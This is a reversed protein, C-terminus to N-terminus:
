RRELKNSKPSSNRKTACKTLLSWRTSSCNELLPMKSNMKKIDLIKLIEDGLPKPLLNLYPQKHNVDDMGNLVYFRKSMNDYHKELDKRQLSCCKMKLHEERAQNSYHNTSGLFETYIFLLDLLSARTVQIQRYWQPQDVIRENKSSKMYLLMQTNYKQLVGLFCRLFANMSPCWWSRLTKQHRLTSPLSKFSDNTNRWNYTKAM